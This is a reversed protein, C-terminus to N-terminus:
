TAPSGHESFQKALIVSLESNSGALDEFPYAFPGVDDSKPTDGLFRPSAGVGRRQASTQGTAQSVPNQDLIL